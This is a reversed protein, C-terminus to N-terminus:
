CEPDFGTRALVSTMRAPLPAILCLSGGTAPHKFELSRAHLLLGSSEGAAGAVRGYLTDGIIPLGISALHIRIQHTRGTLPETEVLYLGNVENLVRFRTSAPKGGPIIGYRNSRGLRGISGEITGERAGTFHDGLCLAAYVKRVRRDRFADTVARNAKRGLSTVMVGSVDRDLRQPMGIDPMGRSRRARLYSVTAEYVCGKYQAPSPQSNVGAPKNLAILHDDEFLIHEPTLRFIVVKGPEVSHITVADGGRVLRSAIRVREGNVYAAGLDILWRARTKSFAGGSRASLITDLRTGSDERSIQFRIVPM